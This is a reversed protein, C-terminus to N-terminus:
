SLRFSLGGKLSCITLRICRRVLSSFLGLLLDIELHTLESSRDAGNGCSGDIVATPRWGRREFFGCEVVLNFISEGSNKAILLQSAKKGDITFKGPILAHAATAPHTLLWSASAFEISSRRMGLERWGVPADRLSLRAQEDIAIRLTRLV